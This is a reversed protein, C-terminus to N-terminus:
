QQGIGNRTVLMRLRLPPATSKQFGVSIDVVKSDTITNLPDSVPLDGTNTVTLTPTYTITSTGAGESQFSNNPFCNTANTLSNFELARDIEPCASLVAYIENLERATTYSKRVADFANSIGFVIIPFIFCALLLELITFGTDPLLRRKEKM